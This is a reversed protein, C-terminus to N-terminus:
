PAPRKSRRSSVSWPPSREPATKRRGDMVCADLEYLGATNPSAGRGAVYLGSAELEGVIEVVVDLSSAGSELRDRGREVLGRM